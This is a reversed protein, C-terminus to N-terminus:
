HSLQSALEKHASHAPKVFFQSRLFKHLRERQSDSADLSALENYKIKVFHLTELKSYDKHLYYCWPLPKRKEKRLDEVEQEISTRLGPLITISTAEVCDDINVIMIKKLKSDLAFCKRHEITCIEGNHWEVRKSSDGMSPVCSDSFPFTTFRMKGDKYSLEALFDSNDAEPKDRKFFYYIGKYNKTTTHSWCRYVIMSIGFFALVIVGGIIGWRTIFDVDEWLKELDDKNKESSFFYAVGWCMAVIPTPVSIINFLNNEILRMLKKM